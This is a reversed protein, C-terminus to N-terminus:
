FFEILKGVSIVLYKGGKTVCGGTVTSYWRGDKYNTSFISQETGPSGVQAKMVHGPAGAFYIHKGDATFTVFSASKYEQGNTFSFAKSQHTSLKRGSRVNWVMAKGDSGASAIMRGDRSFSVENVDGRHGYLTKFVRGSAMEWIMVSGNQLAGALYKGDPSFRINQVGAPGSLTRKSEYDKFQQAFTNGVSAVLIFLFLIYKKM